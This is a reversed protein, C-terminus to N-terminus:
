EGAADGDAGGQGAVVHPAPNRPELALEKLLVQREAVLQRAHRLLLTARGSLEGKGPQEVHPGVDDRYRPGLAPGVQLFIGRGGVDDKSGRVLGPEVRDECRVGWRPIAIRRLEPPQDIARLRGLPCSERQSGCLPSVRTSVPVARLVSHLGNTIRSEVNTCRPWIVM